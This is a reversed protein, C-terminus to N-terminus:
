PTTGPTNSLHFAYLNSDYSMVYVMGNAVAPSAHISAGTTYTWLPTCSPKDCGNFKFAYLKNDVSGIYVIGNAITPSSIIEGGTMATWLPMCSSSGCGFANFAYLKHDASGIYVINDGVAPSSKVYGNTIASWLPLCSPSGCGFAGFAYLKGDDSGVYVIDNSIAPSSRIADGVTATWLPLCVSKGCGTAKFAYFRHDLSGIYVIGNAVAPSSEVFGGTSATWLPSCSPSGCGGANFVYFNYDDSGVYVKGDAVTPSSIITGQVTATWLPSCSPSGCGAANFAYLHHDFSGVYIIGKAMALTPFIIGRTSATWLPPCSQSGCGVANFAYLKGSYSGVYVIGNAVIPSSVLVGGDTIPQGTAGIWGLTLQAVNSPNLLREYPNMHTHLADFGFMIGSATATNYANVMATASAHPGATATARIKASVATAPLHASNQTASTYLFSTSSIILLVLAVLLAIRGWSPGKRRTSTPIASERKPSPSVPRTYDMQESTVNVSQALPLSQKQASPPSPLPAQVPHSVQEPSPMVQALQKLPPTSIPSPLSSSPVPSPPYAKSAQELATAFASINGFRQAPEKVLTRMIVWEVESSISATKSRLPPPSETNHQYGLQLFNGEPFPLEGCLWQYAVVGLSYQDSAAQAKGRFQEPAMYIPTGAGGQTNRSSASEVVVLGFDSLWVEGHPGLLMNEPKVDRHILNRDHAYQLASAIQKVYMVVTDLPVPTGRPHRDRLTGNPAYDMVLFPTNDVAIGFDLLPVINPHRLRITRAENIFKKIDTTETLRAQLVKVAGLTNDHVNTGLYVDGFGGGGLWRTLRYDGFKQGIRDTKM